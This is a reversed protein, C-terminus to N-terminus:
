SHIKKEYNIVINGKRLKNERQYYGFIKYKKEQKGYFFVLITIYRYIIDYIQICISSYITSILSLVINM